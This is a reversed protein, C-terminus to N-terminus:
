QLVKGTKIIHTLYAVAVASRQAYTRAQRWQTCFPKPWRTAPDGDFLVGRETHIESYFDRGKLGLANAGRNLSVNGAMRKEREIKTPASLIDAWGGICCATGCPARHSKRIDDGQDYAYPTSKIKRRVKKLLEINLRSESM